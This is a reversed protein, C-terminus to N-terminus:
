RAGPAGADDVVALVSPLGTVMFPGARPGPLAEQVHRDLKAKIAADSIDNFAWTHYLNKLAEPNGVNKAYM